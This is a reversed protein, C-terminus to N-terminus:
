IKQEVVVLQINTGDPLCDGLHFLKKHPKKNVFVEYGMILPMGSEDYDLFEFYEVNMLRKVKEIKAAVKDALTFMYSTDGDWSGENYMDVNTYAERLCQHYRQNLKKNISVYSM